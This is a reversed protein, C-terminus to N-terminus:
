ETSILEADLVEATNPLYWLKYTYGEEFSNRPFYGASLNGPKKDIILKVSLAGTGTRVDLVKATVEDLANNDIVKIVGQIYPISATVIWILSVVILFVKSWLDIKVQSFREEFWNGKGLLLNEKQLFTWLLIPIPLLYFFGLGVIRAIWDPNITGILLYPGFIVLVAVYWGWNTPIYKWM